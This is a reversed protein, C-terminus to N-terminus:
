SRLYIYDDWVSLKDFSFFHYNQPSFIDIYFRSDKNMHRKVAELCQSIDEESLLHLLSNFGIFIYKFYKNLYFSRMDKHIFYKKSPNFFKSNSYQIYEKSIDLGLYDCHKILKKAIRGTGSGLELVTQHPPSNFEQEWFNLDDKKWWFQDDYIIPSLKYYSQM